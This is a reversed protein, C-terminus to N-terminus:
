YHLGPCVYYGAVLRQGLKRTVDKNICNSNSKGVWCYFNKKAYFQQTIRVIRSYAQIHQFLSIALAEVVL